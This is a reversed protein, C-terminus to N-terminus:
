TAAFWPLTALRHNESLLAKANLRRKERNKNTTEQKSSRLAQDPGNTSSFCSAARTKAPATLARTKKKKRR